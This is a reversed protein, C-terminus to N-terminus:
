EVIEGNKDFVIGDIEYYGDDRQIVEGRRKIGTSTEEVKTTSTVTEPKWYNKAKYYYHKVINDKRKEKHDFVM